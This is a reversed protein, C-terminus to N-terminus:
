ATGVGNAYSTMNYVGFGDKVPGGFDNICHAIGGGGPGNLCVIMLDTFVVGPTDPVEYARDTVVEANEIFVCYSGLGWAQHDTM